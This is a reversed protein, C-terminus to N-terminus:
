GGMVRILYRVRPYKRKKCDQIFYEEWFNDKEDVKGVNFTNLEGTMNGFFNKLEGNKCNILANFTALFPCGLIVLILKKAYDHEEVDVFAWSWHQFM